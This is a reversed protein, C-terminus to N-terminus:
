PIADVDSCCLVDGESGVYCPPQSWLWQSCCQWFGGEFCCATIIWLVHQTIGAKGSWLTDNNTRPHTDSRRKRRRSEKKSVNSFHLSNSKCLTSTTKWNLIKLGYVTFLFTSFTSCKLAMLTSSAFKITELYDLLKKVIKTCGTVKFNQTKEVKRKCQLIKPFLVKKPSQRFHILIFDM